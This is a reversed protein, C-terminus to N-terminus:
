SGQPRPASNRLRLLDGVPEPPGLPEVAETPVAAHPVPGGFPRSRRVVPITPGGSFHPVEEPQPRM